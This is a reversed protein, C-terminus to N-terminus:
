RSEPKGTYRPPRVITWDLRSRTIVEEQREKDELMPKVFFGLVFLRYFLSGHRRGSDGTGLITVCVLRRVAHHGMAEVVNKTGKSLLTSPRRPNPTGLASVVADQGRVASEVSAPDLVDGRVVRIREDQRLVRSPDRALATVEHGREPARLVLERGLGGTAGIILLKM